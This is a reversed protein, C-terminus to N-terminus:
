NLQKVLEVSVKPWRILVTCGDRYKLRIGDSSVLAVTHGHECKVPTSDTITSQGM